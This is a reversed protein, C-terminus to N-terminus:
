AKLQDSFYFPMGNLNPIGKKKNKWLFGPGRLWSEKSGVNASSSSDPLSQYPYYFNAL